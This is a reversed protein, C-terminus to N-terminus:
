AGGLLKTLPEKFVVAIVVLVLGVILLIKMPKSMGQEEPRLTLSSDLMNTRLVKGLVSANSTPSVGGHPNISIPSPQNRFFYYTVAGNDDRKSLRKDDDQELPITYFEYSTKGDRGKVGFLEFGKQNEVIVLEKKKKYFEYHDDTDFVVLKYSLFPRIFRVYIFRGGLFGFQLVMFAIAIWMGINEIM